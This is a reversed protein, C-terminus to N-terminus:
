KRLKRRFFRSPKEEKKQDKEDAKEKSSDKAKKSDRSTGQAEDDAMAIACPDQKGVSVDAFFAAIGIPGLALAGAMKGLVFASRGADIALSPEALTGGLKFPQSLERFSFSVGVPMEGKKPTPKIGLDLEETKLNINGAGIISTRDTDLLIRIDALGDTIENSNVFCNIPTFERKEQFPNVMNLIGSGLYKELLELYRSAAKGNGMAIRADGNLGAMIDAVSNGAGTLKIDVDVNGEINREYGLKDLMPGIELQDIDLKTDLATPKEQSHLAFQVDAKGGGISFNFPKIDLNGNNLLIDLVVLDLALAPLLVQKQRFKLNLDVAQLRELPLPEASFVKAKKSKPKTQSTAIEGKTRKEQVPKAPAPKAPQTKAATQKKEERLLPRLDLKDSSLEGKLSPREASLDLELWGKQNNDGVTVDLSPIRYHKPAPDTIQASVNFAGTYEIDPGGLKKFNTIDSGSASFDLKMGKVASLDKIVGKIVVEMLDLRGLKFDLNELTLIDGVGAVKSILKLPGLDEIRSLAELAPLTVPQLNFRPATLNTELGPQKGSLDLDLFGEIENNGLKLNLSSFKYKKRAPDTLNGSLSYAGKLPISQGTIKKLNAAEEGRINFNLNIGTQKAFNKISGKVDLSALKRTGAGLELKQLSLGDDTIAVKSYIKLPGLDDIKNLNAYAAEKPFPFWKLNFKATSIDAEYIPPEAALNFILRGAMDTDAIKFRFNEIKYVNANPDSIHGSIAYKGQGPVPAFFYPQGTIDKLKSAEDGRLAFKLNIGKQKAPDAISGTLHFEASKLSGARLDLKKIAVEPIPGAITVGLKVPRMLGLGRAWGERALEPLLISPLDLKPLSWNADLKIEDGSFDLNLTGSLNNKGVAVKLNPVKLRRHVPIIAKGSAKLAGRIPMPQGVIQELNALDKAVAQYNIDVGELDLLDKVSGKLSIEVIDPTGVKLDLKEIAPKEFPGIIKLDLDLKGLSFKQSTLVATLFPTEGALNLSVDGDVENEGVALSLDKVAYVRTEPDSIQADARFAGRHPLPPIGLKTLSASDQGRASFILNIGQPDIVNKVAGTLSIAVFEENGIQVDIKEVALSKASGNVNATMKFAGFEPSDEVGALGTIEAVSPGGASIEFSLGEFNIPDRIEGTVTATAGGAAAKLNAPLSYGPEIWAWIPGLTGELDLPKDDFAGKFEFELPEDFGPIEGTLRDIRVSFSFDSRADKYIFRGNEILIDSFILPPPPIAADDREGPIDFLFNNIGEKNFELILNPEVLVLHAFEVKGTIIPLLAVQVELRKVQALDPTTSWSANQFRVNEVTLTPRVGIKFEIDGAITLERGIADKVAGAIMPKFKNFDYLLLFAYLAVMLIMFVLAGAILIKKWRAM